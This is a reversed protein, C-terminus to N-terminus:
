LTWTAPTDNLMGGWQISKVKVSNPVQFVVCGKTTQGPSVAFSGANFNTCGAIDNFDPQYTQGDSGVVVADSNADDSYHGSLGTIVFKAGVFRKGNDPTTYEDSGKAPDIVHTLSVSMKNNESDTDSYSTGLPGTLNDSSNDSSPTPTTAPGNADQKAADVAQKTASDSNSTTAVPTTDSPQSTKSLTEGCAAISLAAIGAAGVAILKRM